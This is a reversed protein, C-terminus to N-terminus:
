VREGVQQEVHDLVADVLVQKHQRCYATEAVDFRGSEFFKNSANGGGCFQWYRCQERCLAVGADIQARMRLFVDREPMVDLRDAPVRGIRFDAFEPARAGLLEPCYTSFNGDVDFNVINFPVVGGSRSAIREPAGGPDDLLPLFQRFERFQVARGSEEQRELLRRYFGRLRSETDACRLSSEPHACESEEVNLGVLTPGISAFFEFIEDPHDLADSTIVAIASFPYDSARLLDIAKMVRAHTGKGDRTRRNRDHLFEPGDISLGLRVDNRRFLEIWAPTILTGNTQISHTVVRAPHLRRAAFAEFARAFFERGAALPEGAHWVITLRAGLLRSEFVAAAISDLVEVTMTRTVHRDPLYCYTCDINCFPTPQIVVLQEPASRAGIGGREM